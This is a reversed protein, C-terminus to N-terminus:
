LIMPTFPAIWNEEKNTVTIVGINRARMQEIMYEYSARVTNTTMSGSNDIFLGIKGDNPVNKLNCLAYWDSRKSIAGGDRPVQIPGLDRPNVKWGQPLKQLLTNEYNPNKPWLLYLYRNPWKSRFENYSKQINAASQSTEDIVAICVINDNTVIPPPPIIVGGESLEKTTRFVPEEIDLVGVAKRRGVFSITNGDIKDNGSNLMSRIRIRSGNGGYTGDVYETKAQIMWNYGQVPTVTGVTYIVAMGSGGQTGVDGVTSGGLGGEAVGILYDPDSKKPPTFWDPSVATVVNSVNPSVYSSGGGGGGSSYLTSSQSTSGGGGGGFYGGGGGGPGQEGGMAGGNSGGNVGPVVPVNAYSEKIVWSGNRVDHNGGYGGQLYSGNAGKWAASDGTGGAGGASQTGGLGSSVGNGMTGPNGLSIGGAGGKGGVRPSNITLAYGAPSPNDRNNVDFRLVHTGSTLNVQTSRPSGSYSTASGVFVQDVYLDLENDAAYEFVYVGTFPAVFNRYITWGQPAVHSNGSEPWVAHSKMFSSWTTWTVAYVARSSIPGYTITEAALHGRTDWIVNTFQDEVVIAWGGRVNTNQAITKIVHNGATLYIEKTGPVSRSTGVTATLIYIEDIYVKLNDDAAYTFLYNGNSPINIMRYSIQDNAVYTEPNSNTWVAHSNMFSNWDSATSSVAYLQPSTFPLITVNEAALRTRSDWVVSSGPGNSPSGGGGAAILLPVNGRFIGSWGGGGGGYTDEYSGNTIGPKGGGGVKVSLVEGATVSITGEVYAGAGGAFVTGPLFQMGGAGGAGWLKVKVSTTNAPVTYRYDTGPSTYAKDKIDTQIVPQPIQYTSFLTTYDSGLDYYGGVYVNGVGSVTTEESAIVVNGVSTLLNSMNYNKSGDTIITTNSGFPDPIYEASLHDRTDWVKRGTQDTVTIAWGGRVPNNLTSTKLTKIGATLYLVKQGPQSSARSTIVEASIVNVENIYIDLHDDVAYKFTYNGTAPINILRHRTQPIGVMTEAVPNTWVAHQNMFSNWDGATSVVPYVQPSTFGISAINEANRYTRTDWLSGTSITVGWGAPNNAWNDGPGDNLAEFRLIHNGASLSITYSEPNANNFNGYVNAVLNGDVYFKLRDDAAISVVYNGSYPATFNRYINQTQNKLINTGPNVWVSFRNLWDSWSNVQKLKYVIPSVFSPSGPITEAPLASRTDWLVADINVAWGAPNQDWKANTVGNSANLAEFRLIHNGSSLTTFVTDPNGMFDGSKGIYSDDIYLTLQNDAQFRIRYMGTYPATFKRYYTQMQGAKSPTGPGANLNMNYFPSIWNENNNSVTTQTIGKVAIRQLLYDYSAKIKSFGLSGSTDIFVGINSGAPLQDLNCIAFWDSRLSQNGNDINVTTPGYDLNAASWGNPIKLASPGYNNGPQLLYIKYNPYWLRFKDYADQITGASLSTENIVAICVPNSVVPDDVWVANSNMFSSWTKWTVPYLAPSVFPTTIITVNSITGGVRAASIDISGGSNFYWRAKDETDFDVVFEHEIKGQWATTRISSIKPEFSMQDPDFEMRNLDLTTALEEINATSDTGDEAIIRGNVDVRPQMTLGSGTHININSMTSQMANWEVSGVRNGPNKPPLFTTLQGYGRKGYGYGILAAIPGNAATEDDPYPQDPGFEGRFDMFNGAAVNNGTNYSM